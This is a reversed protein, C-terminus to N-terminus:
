KASPRGFEPLREACDVHISHGRVGHHGRAHRDPPVSDPSSATHEPFEM